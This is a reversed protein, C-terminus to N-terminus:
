QGVDYQVLENTAGCAHVGKAIPTNRSLEGLTQSKRRFPFSMQRKLYAKKRAPFSKRLDSLSKKRLTFAKKRSLFSTRRLPFSGVEVQMRFPKASLNLRAYNLVPLRVTGCIM